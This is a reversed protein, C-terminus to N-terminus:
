PLVVELLLKGSISVIDGGTHLRQILGVSGSLKEEIM